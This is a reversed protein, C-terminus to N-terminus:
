NRKKLPVVNDKRAADEAAAQQELRVFGPGILQGLEAVDAHVAMMLKRDESSNMINSFVMWLPKTKDKYLKVTMEFQAGIFGLDWQMSASQARSQRAKMILLQLDEQGPTEYKLLSKSLVHRLTSQFASTGETQLDTGMIALAKRLKRELMREEVGVATALEPVTPVRGNQREFEAFKKRVLDDFDAPKM